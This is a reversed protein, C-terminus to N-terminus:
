DCFSAVFIAYVSPVGDFVTGADVRDTLLDFPVVGFSYFVGDCLHLFIIIGPASSKWNREMTLGLFLPYDINSSGM